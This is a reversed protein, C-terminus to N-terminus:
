RAQGQRAAAVRELLSPRGAQEGALPPFQKRTPIAQGVALAVKNVRVVQGFVDTLKFDYPGAGMGSSAVFYNYSERPLPAYAAQSGSARWAVKAVPYRHDRVQVATWWPNSGEKFYLSLTPPTCAVYEWRIPIRGQQLDAIQAFAAQDLDVDGVACEPCQDDIRVEVRKGNAPNTVLICAGCAQSGAYDDHNMAATLRDPLPFSCNGGGGYSYFTGEGTHVKGYGGAAGAPGAGLGLGVALVGGVVVGRLVMVVRGSTQQGGRFAAVADQRARKRGLSLFRM